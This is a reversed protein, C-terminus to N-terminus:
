KLCKCGDGANMLRRWASRSSPRRASFVTTRKRSTRPMSNKNSSTASLWDGRTTALGSLWEAYNAEVVLGGGYGDCYWELENDNLVAQCLLAWLLNRARNMFAYKAAGKEMIAHVLRNLKFQIKYCLLIKPSDAQLRKENFVQEYVNENEFAERMNSLRDVYGDTALFTKTLRLLEVAKHHKIELEELDSDTLNSFMKELREYYIGLDDRLKDAIQCQILDNARLNWPMVPNQRNNNITVGVIFEPTAHTIIRCPVWIDHLVTQREEFTKNGNNLDLFKDFTTITQAGNLLRPETVRYTGDHREFRQASLTVGNHNFAFVSPHETDDLM